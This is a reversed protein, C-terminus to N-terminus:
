RSLARIINYREIAKVVDGWASIEAPTQEEKVLPTPLNEYWDTPDAYTWFVIKATHGMNEYDRWLQKQANWHYYAINTEDDGITMGKFALYYGSKQPLLERVDYWICMKM